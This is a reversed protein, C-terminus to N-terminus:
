SEPEVALREGLETVLLDGTETALVTPPPPDTAVSATRDRSTVRLGAATLALGLTM